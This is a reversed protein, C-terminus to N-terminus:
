DLGGLLEKFRRGTVGWGPVTDAETWGRTYRHNRFQGKCWRSATLNHEHRIDINPQDSMWAECGYDDIREARGHTGPEFGLRQSFGDRVVREVRKRYHSLLLLRYACLGSTQKCDDVKLAHGDSARVKWVNVNYYFIDTRPPVFEFHSKDYLCDHECFFVVNATSAELGTLIQRFMTLYGRKLDLTINQGFDIPKLSVSIIPLGCQKLQRQCADMISPDLRNDTYYVLEKNMQKSSYWSM